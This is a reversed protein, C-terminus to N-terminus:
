VHLQLPPDLLQVPLYFFLDLLPGPREAQQGMGTHSLLPMPSPPTGPLGSGSRWHCSRLWSCRFSGRHVCWRYAVAAPSFSWLPCSAAASDTSRLSSGHPVFLEAPLVSM